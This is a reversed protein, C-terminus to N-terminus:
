TSSIARPFNPQPSLCGGYSALVASSQKVHHTVLKLRSTLKAEARAAIQGIEGDDGDFMADTKPKTIFWRM